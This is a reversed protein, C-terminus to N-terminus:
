LTDPSLFWLGDITGCLIFHWCSATSIFFDGECWELNHCTDTVLLYHWELTYQFIAESMKEVLDEMYGHHITIAPMCLVGVHWQQPPNGSSYHLLSVEMSRYVEQSELPWSAWRQQVLGTSIASIAPMWPLLIVSYLLTTMAVTHLFESNQHQASAPQPTARMWYFAPSSPCCQKIIKGSQSPPLKQVPKNLM